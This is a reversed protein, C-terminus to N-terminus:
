PASERGLALEWWHPGGGVRVRRALHGQVRARAAVAAPAPQSRMMRRLAGAAGIAVVATGFYIQYFFGNVFFLATFAAVIMATLTQGLHRTADDPAELRISRAVAAAGLFMVVIVVVGIWGIELLSLLMQNDLLRYNDSGWTGAGRGFWPRQAIFDFAVDYDSTRATISTDSELGRFLALLSGPLTPSVVYLAVVGAVAAAAMRRLLPASWISAQIGLAVVLALIGSRSVTTPVTAAILVAATWMARRARRTPEHLAYHIALPLTLAMVVGLEIAHATTGTARVFGSRPRSRVLEGNLVLGPFRMRAPLDVGVYFQVLAVVAVVSALAVLRRLLTELRRRDGVAGSVTLGIAVMAATLVVERQGAAAEAPTLDRNSSLGFSVVVVIGYAWLGVAVPNRGPPVLAPVFRSATYALGVGLAVVIAPRAIAGGGPLVWQQPILWCTVLFVTLASVADLRPARVPVADTTPPPVATRM